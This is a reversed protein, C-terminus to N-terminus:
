STCGLSVDMQCSQVQGSATCLSAGQTCANLCCTSVNAAISNLAASLGAQDTVAYASGTGGAQAIADLVGKNNGTAGAGFGVVYVKIGAAWLAAASANSAADDLCDKAGLGCCSSGVCTNLSKCGLTTTSCTYPNNATNCNPLGDTILLVYAPTALSLGTLYARAADLSPATPTGGGPAYANYTAAVQASTSPVPNLTTGTSCNFTTASNPFMELGFRFRSSFSSVLTPVASKASAWKTPCTPCAPDPVESMSGSKDQVLFLVPLESPCPTAPSEGANLFAALAVLAAFSLSPKLTV